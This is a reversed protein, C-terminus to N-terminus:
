FNSTDFVQDDFKLPFAFNTKHTSFLVTFFIFYVQHNVFVVLFENDQMNVTFIRRLILVVVNATRTVQLVLYEFPLFKFWTTNSSKPFTKWFNLFNEVFLGLNCM